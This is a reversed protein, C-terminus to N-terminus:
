GSAFPPQKHVNQGFRPLMAILFLELAYFLIEVAKSACAM